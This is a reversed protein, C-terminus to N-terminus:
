PGRHPLYSTLAEESTCHFRFGMEKKLKETSLVIPYRVFDLGAAPSDKQLGLKWAAQTLPSAVMYPLFILRRHSLRAVRSYHIVGEGAVNFTGPTPRLVLHHLLRALDEEHVFQMPPDYGRIGLLVPKFFAETVYNGANPGMVVCSRLVTVCTSPTQSAFEQVMGECLAKDYAYQFRPPPRPPTEETIPIPNDRHAGYVTHSSLFVLNAVNSARCAELVSGMAKLNASRVRQVGQRGRGPRLVFALHVVTNVGYDGFIGDLPQSADLRRASVNDFPIPLPRTDIALVHGLTEDGDLQKLLRLGVYGSAGTVAV